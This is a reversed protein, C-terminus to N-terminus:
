PIQIYVRASCYTNGNVDYSAGLNETRQIPANTCAYASVLYDNMCSARAGAEANASAAAFCDWNPNTSTYAAVQSYGTWYITRAQAFSSISVLGLAIAARAM